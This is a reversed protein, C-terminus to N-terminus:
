AEMQAAAQVTQPDIADWTVKFDALLKHIELLKNQDNQLHATTLSQTMYTYLANLNKAIEGGDTMNLSGRLGSDIISAAHNIAVGKEMVNGAAMHQRAKTIAVM